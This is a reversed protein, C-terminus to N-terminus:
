FQSQMAKAEFWIEAYQPLGEWLDLACEMKAVVYRLWEEPTSYGEGRYLTQRGEDALITPHWDGYFEKRARALISKFREYDKKGTFTGDQLLCYFVWRVSVRYPVSKIHAMASDLIVRSKEQPKWVNESAM